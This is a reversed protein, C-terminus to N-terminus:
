NMMGVRPLGIEETISAEETRNRIVDTINSKDFGIGTGVHPKLSAIQILAGNYGDICRTHAASAEGHITIIDHVAANLQISCVAANWGYFYAYQADMIDCYYEAVGDRIATLTFMPVPTDPDTVERQTQCGNIYGAWFSESANAVADGLLVGCNWGFFYEMMSLEETSTCFSEPTISYVPLKDRTMYAIKPAPM